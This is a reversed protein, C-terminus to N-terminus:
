AEWQVRPGQINRRQRRAPRVPHAAPGPERATPGDGTGRAHPSSRRPGAVAVSREHGDFVPIHM